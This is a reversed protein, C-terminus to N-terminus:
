DCFGLGNRRWFRRFCWRGPVFLRDRRLGRLSTLWSWGLSRFDFRM